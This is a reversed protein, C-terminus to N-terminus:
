IHLRVNNGSLASVIWEDKSTRSQAPTTLCTHLSSAGADGLETWYSPVIDGMYEVMIFYKKKDSLYLRALYYKAATALALAELALKMKQSETMQQFSKLSIDKFRTFIAFAKWENTIKGSVLQNFLDQTKADFQAINHLQGLEQPTIGNILNQPNRVTLLPRIRATITRYQEEFNELNIEVEPNHTKM